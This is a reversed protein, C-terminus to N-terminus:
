VREIQTAEDIALLPLLRIRAVEDEVDPLLDLVEGRGHRELGAVADEGSRWAPDARRHVRALEELSAIDHAALDVAEAMDFCGHNCLASGTSGSQSTRIAPPPGVPSVSAMRSARRPRLTM